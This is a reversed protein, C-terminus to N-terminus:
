LTQGDELYSVKGNKESSGMSIHYRKLLKVNAELHRNSFINKFSFLLPVSVLRSGSLARSSHGYTRIASRPYTPNTSYAWGASNDIVGNKVEKDNSYDNQVRGDRINNDSPARPM